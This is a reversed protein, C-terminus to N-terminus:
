SPCLSYGRLFFSAVNLLYVNSYRRYFMLYLFLDACLVPGLRLLDNCFDPIAQQVGGLVRRM